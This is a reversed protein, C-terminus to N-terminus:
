LTEACRSGAGVRGGERLGVVRARGGLQGEGGLGRRALVDLGGAGAGEVHRHRDLVGAAVGLGSVVGGRDGQGDVVVRASADEGAGVGPAQGHRHGRAHGVEGPAGDGLRAGAVGELGARVRRARCRGVGVGEVDGGARGGVQGEGGLGRRACFMWAVPVPVNEADTATWSALPFVTSVSVLFTVRAMPLLGENPTSLQVLVPPRVTAAAAPTALKVPHAMVLTPM